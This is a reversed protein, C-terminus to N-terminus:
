RSLYSDNKYSLTANLIRPNFNKLTNNHISMLVMAYSFYRPLLKPIKKIFKKM